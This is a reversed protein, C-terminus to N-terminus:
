TGMGMLMRLNLTAAGGGGNLTNMQGTDSGFGLRWPWSDQWTVDSIFAPARQSFAGGGTKQNHKIINGYVHFVGNKRSRRQLRRGGRDPVEQFFSGAYISTSGATWWWGICILNGGGNTARHQVIPYRPHCRYAFCNFDIINSTFFTTNAGTSIANLYDNSQAAARTNSKVFTQTSGGLEGTGVFNSSLTPTAANEGWFYYSLIQGQQNAAPRTASNGGGIFWSMFAM